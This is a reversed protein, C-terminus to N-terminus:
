YFFLVVLDPLEDRHALLLAVEQVLFDVVHQRAVDAGRVLEVVDERHEARHADLDHVGLLAEPLLRLLLAGLEVEGRAREVLGVVGDAHVQPLHARHRQEGALALDLDRHPDLPALVRHEPRDGTGVHRGLLDGAESLPQGGALDADAVGHDVVLLLDGLLLDLGLDPLGQAQDALGVLGVLVVERIALV